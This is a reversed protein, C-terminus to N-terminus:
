PNLTPFLTHLIQTMWGRRIMYYMMVQEIEEDSCRRTRILEIRLRNGELIYMEIYTILKQKGSIKSTLCSAVEGTTETVTKAKHPNTICYPKQRKSKFNVCVHVSIHIHTKLVFLSSIRQFKSLCSFPGHHHHRVVQRWMALWSILSVQYCLM